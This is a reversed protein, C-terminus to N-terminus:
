EHVGDVKQKNTKIKILKLQIVICVMLCKEQIISYAKHESTLRKQRAHQYSHTYLSFCDLPLRGPFFHQHRSLKHLTTKLTKTLKTSSRSRVEFSAICGRCKL